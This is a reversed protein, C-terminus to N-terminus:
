SLPASAMVRKWHAERQVEIGEVADELDESCWCLRPRTMPVADSCDLLYPFLSLERSITACETREMSSINEVTKKMRVRRGFSRKLLAEIRPIEYFLSSAMGQLGERGAKASSLDTCPFGAWLHVEEADTYELAWTDCIEQNVEKMDKLIKVFPWRRSTIRNAPGSLDVAVDGLIQVGLIDYIRFCGGIGNFLSVVFIPVKGPSLGAARCAGVFGRGAPTFERAIGVAGGKLSADSATVFNMLPSGLSTHLLPVLCILSFLERRVMFPLESGHPQPSIIKWLSQLCAMGARRFQLIHVWRGGIIQLLKRELRRSGLLFIISFAVKLFREGSVGM